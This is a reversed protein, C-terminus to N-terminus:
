ILREGSAIGPLQLGMHIVNQVLNTIVSVDKPQCLSNGAKLNPIM